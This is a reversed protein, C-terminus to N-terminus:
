LIPEADKGDIALAHIEMGPLEALTKSKGATDIVSGSVRQKIKITVPKERESALLIVTGKKDSLFQRAVDSFGESSWTRSPAVSAPAIGLFPRPLTTWDVGLLRSIEDSSINKKPFFPRLGEVNIKENLGIVYFNIIEGAKQLCFNNTSERTFFHSTVSRDPESEARENPEKGQSERQVPPTSQFPPAATNSLHFVDTSRCRRAHARGAGM